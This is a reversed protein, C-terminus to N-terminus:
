IYLHRCEFPVSGGLKGFLVILWMEHIKITTSYCLKGVNDRM